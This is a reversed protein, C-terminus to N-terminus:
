DKTKNTIITPITPLPDIGMDEFVDGIAIPKCEARVDLSSIVNELAKSHAEDKNNAEVEVYEIINVDCFSISIEVSYLM